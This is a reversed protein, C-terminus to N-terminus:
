AVISTEEGEPDFVEWDSEAIDQPCARCELPISHNKWYKFDKPIDAHYGDTRAIYGRVKCNNKAISFKM